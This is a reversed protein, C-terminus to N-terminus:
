NNPLEVRAWHTPTEQWSGQGFQIQENDPTFEGDIPTATCFYRTQNDSNCTYCVIVPNWNEPMECGPEIKVLNM